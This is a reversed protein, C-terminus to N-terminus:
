LEIRSVSHDTPPASIFSPALGEGAEGIGVDGDEALRVGGAAASACPGGRVLAGAPLWAADHDIAASVHSGPVAVSARM